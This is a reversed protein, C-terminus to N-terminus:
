IEFSKIEEFGIWQRQRAASQWPLRIKLVLMLASVIENVSVSRCSVLDHDHTRAYGVQSASKAVACKAHYTGSM